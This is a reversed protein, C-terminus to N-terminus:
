VTLWLVLIPTDEILSLKLMNQLSNCEVIAKCSTQLTDMGKSLLPLYYPIMFFQLFGLAKCYLRKM